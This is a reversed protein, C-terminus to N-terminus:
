WSGTVAIDGATGFYYCGDVSCGDWQGNGNLDVYWRGTSPRFVGVKATGSGDWDGSVPQDGSMGFNICRDTGCGDWQGNGNYDLYWWGTSPRFVGVKGSGSGDWDGSVPQDGSMGFNICRDTGCGDWQGNGNYDLYWMGTTPRFVGVKAPGSNNWDGAVPLDGSMGFHICSDTGCGSWQDNGNLDLYWMGTGPRFTGVESVGDNNWDGAVPLDGNMGFTYCGDIACGDWHDNGNLDLYWKGTSARFVGIRSSNSETIQVNDLVPGYNLPNTNLSQFTLKSLSSTAIFEFSYSNWIMGTYGPLSPNVDTNDIFTYTGSYEEMDTANYVFAVLSLATGYRAWPNGSLDFSVIYKTGISTVFSQSIKGPNAGTMDISYNGDSSNWYLNGVWDISGGTITWGLIDDYEGIYTTSTLNQSQNLGPPTVGTNPTEFSGNIISVSAHSFSFISSLLLFTFILTKRSLTKM